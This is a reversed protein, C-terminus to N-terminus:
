SLNRLDPAARDRLVGHIARPDSDPVAQRQMLRLAVIWFRFDIKFALDALWLTAYGVIVTALAILGNIVAM